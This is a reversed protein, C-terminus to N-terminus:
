TVANYVKINELAIHKVTLSIIAWINLYFKDENPVTNKKKEKKSNIMEFM